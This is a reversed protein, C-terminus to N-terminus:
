NCPKACVSGIVDQYRRLMADQSFTQEVRQRARRGLMSAQEPHRALDSLVEAFAAATQAEVIRGYVEEGRLLSAIGAVNSGVIPLASAMAQLLATSLTEGESAHAYFNLSAFWDRLSASDLYGTFEVQDVLGAELVRAQTRPLTEGEGALSLQWQGAGDREHLLRLADVLLDFRKIGTFRAAMGIRRPLRDRSAGRRVPLCQRTDIGSPIVHVKSARWSAGLGRRLDERYEETLVVVADALRMLWRSVFWEARTKLPNSQHEVAILCIGRMRAYLWCPFITKVSHLIIVDPRLAYLSRILRVWAIWPLGARVAVGFYQAEQRECFERYTPLMPEVGFFVFGGRWAGRERAAEQLSFAVSSHGGLGSYLVQVVRKTM